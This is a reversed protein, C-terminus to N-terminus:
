FREYYRIALKDLTAIFEDRHAAKEEAPVLLGTQLGKNGAVANCYKQCARFLAIVGSNDINDPNVITRHSNEFFSIIQREQKHTFEVKAGM